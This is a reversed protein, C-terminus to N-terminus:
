PVSWDERQLGCPPVDDGWGTSYTGSDLVLENTGVRRQLASWLLPPEPVGGVPVPFRRVSLVRTAGPGGRRAPTAVSGPRPLPRARGLEFRRGSQAGGSRQGAAATAPELDRRCRPWDVVSGTADASRRVIGLSQRQGSAG